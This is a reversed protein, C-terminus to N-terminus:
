MKEVLWGLSLRNILSKPLVKLGRTGVRGLAEHLKKRGTRSVQLWQWNRNRKLHFAFDSWM